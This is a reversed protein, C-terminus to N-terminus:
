KEFVYCTQLFSSSNSNSSVLKYGKERINNLTSAITTVNKKSTDEKKIDLTELPFTEFYEGGNSIYIASPFMRNSSQEIQVYMYETPQANTFSAIGILITIIAIALATRKINM